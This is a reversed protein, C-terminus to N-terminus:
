GNTQEAPQEPAPQQATQEPAPQAAEETPTEKVGTITVLVNWYYRCNEETLVVSMTDGTKGECNNWTADDTSWRWQITYTVNDYGQVDAHLTATDGINYGGEPVNTFSLSISRNEDLAEAILEQPEKETFTVTVTKDVNTEVIYEGPVNPDKLKAGTVTLRYGDSAKATFTFTEGEKMEQTFGNGIKEGSVKVEGQEANQINVTIVFSEPEAAYVAKATLETTEATREVSIPDPTIYGAVKPAAIAATNAGKAFNVTTTWTGDGVPNGETDVLTVTLPLSAAELIPETVETAETAETAETVETAETAETAETVETAETAETAETTETAETAETAATTATVETAQTAETAETAATTEDAGDTQTAETAQTAEAAPAETPKIQEEVQAAETEKVPKDLVIQETVTNGQVPAETAPTQAAAETPTESAHLWNGTNMVGTGVVITLALALALVHKWNKHKM